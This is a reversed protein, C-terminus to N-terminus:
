AVLSHGSLQRRVAQAQARLQAPSLNDLDPVAAADHFQAADFGLEGYVKLKDAFRVTPGFQIRGKTSTGPASPSVIAM